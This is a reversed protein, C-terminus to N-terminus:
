DKGDLDAEGGLFDTMSRIGEMQQMTEGEYYTIDIRDKPFASRIQNVVEHTVGTNVALEICRLTKFDRAILVAEPTMKSETLNLKGLKLQSLDRMNKESIRLGALELTELEKLRRISSVARESIPTSSVNLLRLHPYRRIIYELDSDDFHKCEDVYLARLKPLDLKKFGATSIDLCSLDLRVLEKLENIAPIAEDGLRTKKINLAVLPLERLYKLGEATVDGSGELKLEKIEEGILTKLAEDTAIGSRLKHKDNGPLPEFYKVPVKSVRAPKQKVPEFRRISMRNYAVPLAIAAVLLLSALLILSTRGARVTGERVSPIESGCALCQEKLAAMSAPRKAPDKALCSLILTALDRAPRSSETGSELPPPTQYLHAKITKLPTEERFPPHGCLMEYMICGLSYIDSSFDVEEGRAQEPSMYLPSGVLGGPDTSWGEEDAGYEVKAIGFDVIKVLESGDDAGTLMINGPKLDRHVVGREHAHTMGDCIQSVISVIRRWPLAGSRSLADALSVGEVYEMVLYPEHEETLGFDLVGMINPHQFRSAARAERQFRIVAHPTLADAMLLKIAVHKDLIVDRARFIVGMGGSSLEQVGDYRAQLQAPFGPRRKM